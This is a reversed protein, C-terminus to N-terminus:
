SLSLGLAGELTVAVHVLEVANVYQAHISGSILDEPHYTHNSIGDPGDNRLSISIDCITKPVKTETPPTQSTLSQTTSLTLAM